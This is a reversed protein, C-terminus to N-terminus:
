GDRGVPGGGSTHTNRSGGSWSGPGDDILVCENVIKEYNMRLKSLVEWGRSAIIIIDPLFIDFLM